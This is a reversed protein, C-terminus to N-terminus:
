KDKLTLHSTLQAIIVEADGHIHFTKIRSKSGAVLEIHRLPQKSLDALLRCAADNAHGETPLARVRMKLIPRGDAPTEIGDIGDRSSKPTLRIHLRLGNECIQWPLDSM